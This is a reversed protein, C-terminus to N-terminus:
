TRFIKMPRSLRGFSTIPEVLIGSNVRTRVRDPGLGFDPILNKQDPCIKGIGNIDFHQRSSEIQILDREKGIPNQNIGEPDIDVYVLYMDGNPTVVGM